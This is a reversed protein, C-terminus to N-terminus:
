RIAKGIWLGALMMIAFIVVDAPRLLLSSIVPGPCLGGLGWGIGFLASGGLLRRDIDQGTPLRFTGGLLPTARKMLLHHGIMNVMVGGGMVFALSPDWLGFIDLFGAIKSPNLMGAVALGIGFLGGILFSCLLAM